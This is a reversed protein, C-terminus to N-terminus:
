GSYLYLLPGDISRSDRARYRTPRGAAQPVAGYVPVRRASLAPRGSAPDADLAEIVQWGAPAVVHPTYTEVLGELRMATIAAERAENSPMARSIENLVIDACKSVQALLQGSTMGVQPHVAGPPKTPTIMAMDRSWKMRDMLGAIHPGGFPNLPLNGFNLGDPLALYGALAIAERDRLRISVAAGGGPQPQDTVKLRAVSVGLRRAAEQGALRTLHERVAQAGGGAHTAIIGAYRRVLEASRGAGTLGGGRASLEALFAPHRMDRVLLESEPIRRDLLARIALREAEV